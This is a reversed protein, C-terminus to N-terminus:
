KHASTLKSTISSFGDLWEKEGYSHSLPCNWLYPVSKFVWWEHVLYLSSYKPKNSFDSSKSTFGAQIVWTSCSHSLQPSTWVHWFSAATVRSATASTWQLCRFLHLPYIGAIIPHCPWPNTSHIKIAKRWIWRGHDGPTKALFSPPLSLCLECGTLLPSDFAFPVLLSLFLWHNSLKIQPKIFYCLMCNM